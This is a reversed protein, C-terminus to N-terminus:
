PIGLCEAGVEGEAQQEESAVDDCFVDLTTWGLVFDLVEGPNLGIRVSKCVALVVEIETFYSVVWSDSCDPLMVGLWGYADYHKGRPDFRKPDFEEASRLTYTIDSETFLWGTPINDWIKGGRLGMDDQCLLLGVNVVSARVKAGGGQGTTFTFIDAADRGRDIMYPTGCGACALALSLAIALQTLNRM